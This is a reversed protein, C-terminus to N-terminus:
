LRSLNESNIEDKKDDALLMISSRKVKIRENMQKLCLNLLGDVSLESTIVKGIEDLTALENVKQVLKKNAAALDQGATRIKKVLLNKQFDLQMNTQKLEHYFLRKSRVTRHKSLVQQVATQLEFSNFPKTIYDDVGYRFSSVASEVSPCGAVIISMIEPNIKKAKRILELGDVESLELETIVMHYDSNEVLRLAERSSFCAEVQYHGRMLLEKIVNCSKPENDVVLIKGRGM